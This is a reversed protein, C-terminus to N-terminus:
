RTKREATDRRSGGMGLYEGFIFVFGKILKQQKAGKGGPRSSFDFCLFAALSSSFAIQRPGQRGEAGHAPQGLGWSTVQHLTLATQAAALHPDSAVKPSLRGTRCGNRKARPREWGARPQLVTPLGATPAAAKVLELGLRFGHSLHHSNPPGPPGPPPPLRPGGSTM